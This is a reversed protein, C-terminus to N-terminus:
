EKLFIDTINEYNGNTNKRYFRQNTTPSDLAGLEEHYSGSKVYDFVHMWAEISVDRGSYLCAKLGIDHVYEAYTILENKEKQSGKGEGLFCVCTAQCSYLELIDSFNTCLLEGYDNMQLEPYHCNKCRNPCGSIYICISQEGPVEYPSLCFETYHLM